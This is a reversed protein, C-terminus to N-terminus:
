IQMFASFFLPPPRLYFSREEEFSGLYRWQIRTLSAGLPARPPANGFIVNRSFFIIIIIIDSRQM